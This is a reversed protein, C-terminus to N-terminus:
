AAHLVNRSMYLAEQLEKSEKLVSLAQQIEPGEDVYQQLVNLAMHTMMNHEDPSIAQNHGPFSLAFRMEKHEFTKGFDLARWIYAIVNEGSPKFDSKNKPFDQDIHDKQATSIGSLGHTFSIADM